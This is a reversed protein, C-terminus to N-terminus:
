SMQIGVQPYFGTLPGEGLVKWWAGLQGMHFTEHNVMFTLLGFKTGDSIPFSRSFPKNLMDPTITEIGGDWLQILTEWEKLLVEIEPYKSVDYIEDGNLKLNGWSPKHKLGVQRGFFSRAEVMHVLLWLPPNITESKVDYAARDPVERLFKTAFQANFSLQLDMAKLLPEMREGSLDKQQNDM